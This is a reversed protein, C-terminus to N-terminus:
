EETIVATLTCARSSAINKDLLANKTEPVPALPAAHIERKRERVWDRKGDRERGTEGEWAM